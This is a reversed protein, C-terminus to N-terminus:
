PAVTLTATPTLCSLLPLPLPSSSSQGTAFVRILCRKVFLFTTKYYMRTHSTWRRSFAVGLGESRSCAGAWKKPYPCSRRVEPKRGVIRVDASVPNRGNPRARDGFEEPQDARTFFAPVFREGPPERDEDATFEDGDNVTTQDNRRPDRGYGPAQM